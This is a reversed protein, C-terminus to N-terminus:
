YVSGGQCIIGKVNTKWTNMTAVFKCTMEWRWGQEVCWKVCHIFMGAKLIKGGILPALFYASYILSNHLRSSHSQQLSSKYNLTFLCWILMETWVALHPNMTFTVNSCLNSPSSPLLIPSIPLSCEPSLPHDVVSVQHHTWALTDLCTHTPMLCTM